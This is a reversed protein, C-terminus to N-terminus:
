LNRKALWNQIFAAIEASNKEIMMKHNNGRIGVRELRILDNAVGAHALYHSVCHSRQALPSAEGIIVAIPIGELTPLRRVPQGQVWCQSVDPSDAPLVAHWIEGPDNVPPDYTIPTMTIGYPPDASGGQPHAPTLAPEITVIAKVMGPRADAIQWGFAGGQSHTLM